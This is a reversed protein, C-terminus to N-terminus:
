GSDSLYYSSIFLTSLLDIFIGLFIFFLSNIGCTLLSLLAFNFPRKESLLFEKTVIEDGSLITYCNFIDQCVHYILISNWNFINIM